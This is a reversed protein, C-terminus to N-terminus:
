IYLLIFAPPNIKLALCRVYTSPFQDSMRFPGGLDLLDLLGDCGALWIDIWGAAQCGFRCVFYLLIMMKLRCGWIPLKHKWKVLPLSSARSPASPQALRCFYFSESQQIIFIKNFFLYIHKSFLFMLSKEIKRENRKRWRSRTREGIGGSDPTIHSSCIYLRNIIVFNENKKEFLPPFLSIFLKVFFLEYYWILNLIRQHIPLSFPGFWGLYFSLFTLNSINKHIMHTESWHYRRGNLINARGDM